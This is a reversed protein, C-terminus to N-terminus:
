WNARGKIMAAISAILGLVVAGSLIAVSGPMNLGQTMAEIVLWIEIIFASAGWGVLTAISHLRSMREKTIAFVGFVLSMGCAALLVLAKIKTQGDGETLAGPMPAAGDIPAFLAVLGALGALALLGAIFRM